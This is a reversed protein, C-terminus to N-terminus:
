LRQQKKMDKKLYSGAQLNQCSSIIYWSVFVLDLVSQGLIVWTRSFYAVLPLICLGFTWSCNIVGNMHARMDPAVIESILVFASTFMSPLVSGNITRLVAFIM